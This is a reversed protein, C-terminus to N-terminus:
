FDDERSGPKSLFILIYYHIVLFPRGFNYSKHGGPCSNKHYPTAMYTMYHFHMIGKFIKKKVELCVDTLSVIYNHYGLCPRGCYSRKHGRHCPNKHQPTAM